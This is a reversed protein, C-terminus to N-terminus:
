NKRINVDYAQMVSVGPPLTGTEEMFEKLAGEALRKQLMDFRGTEQIYAWTAPWDSASFKRVLQRFAIGVGGEGKLQTSGVEEMKKLMIARIQDQVQTLGAYKEEFESKVESKKDRVQTFLSILQTVNLKLLRPDLQPAENEQVESM